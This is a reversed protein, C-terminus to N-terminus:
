LMSSGGGSAEPMNTTQSAGNASDGTSSEFDMLALSEATIQGTRRDRVTL